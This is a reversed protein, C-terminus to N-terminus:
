VPIVLTNSPNNLTRQQVVLEDDVVHGLDLAPVEEPHLEVVLSFLSRKGDHCGIVGM